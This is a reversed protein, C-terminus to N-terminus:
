WQMHPPQTHAQSPTRYETHLLKSAESSNQGQLWDEYLTKLAPSLEPLRVPLSSYVEEMQQVLAKDVRGEAEGEAQGRGSLCGTPSVLSSLHSAAEVRLNLM